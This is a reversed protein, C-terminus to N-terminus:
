LICVHEHVVSMPTRLDSVATESSVFSIPQYPNHNGRVAMCAECCSTMSSILCNILAQPLQDWENLPVCVAPKRAFLGRENLRKYVTVRTVRNGTAAYLYRSLQSATAERNRRALISLYCDKRAMTARLRRQGPKREISGTDQFQKWLNCM